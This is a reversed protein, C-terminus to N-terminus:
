VAHDHGIVARWHLTEYNLPLSISFQHLSSAFRKCFQMCKPQGVSAGGQAINAPIPFFQGKKVKLGAGGHLGRWAILCAIQKQQQM